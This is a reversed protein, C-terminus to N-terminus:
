LICRELEEEENPKHLFLSLGQLIRPLSFSPPQKRPNFVVNPDYVYDKEDLRKQEAYCDQIWEERTTHDGIFNVHEFLESNTGTILHTPKNEGRANWSPLISNVNGFCLLSSPSYPFKALQDSITTLGFCHKPKVVM